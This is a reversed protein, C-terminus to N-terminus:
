RWYRRSEDRYRSVTAGGAEIKVTVAGDRDTRWIARGAGVYRAVVEQASRNERPATRAWGKTPLPNTLSADENRAAPSTQKQSHSVSQGDPIRRAASKSQTFWDWLLNEFRLARQM